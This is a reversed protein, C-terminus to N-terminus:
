TISAAAAAMVQVALSLPILLNLIGHMWRDRREIDLSLSLSLSLSPSAATQLCSHSLAPEKESTDIQMHYTDHSLSLSLILAHM